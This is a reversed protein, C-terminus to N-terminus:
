IGSVNKLNSLVVDHTYKWVGVAAEWVQRENDDFDKIAQCIASGIECDRLCRALKEKQEQALKADKSETVPFNRACCPKCTALDCFNCEEAIKTAKLSSESEKVQSKLADTQAALTDAERRLEERASGICSRERAGTLRSASLFHIDDELTRWDQRIRNAHSEIKIKLPKAEAKLRNIEEVGSVTTLTARAPKSFTNKTELAVRSSRSSLKVYEMTSANLTRLDDKLRELGRCLRDIAATEAAYKKADV